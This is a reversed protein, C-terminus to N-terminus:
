AFIVFCMSALVRAYARETNGGTKSPCRLPLFCKDGGMNKNGAKVGMVTFAATMLTPLVGVDEVLGAFGNVIDMLFKLFDSNIANQWITNISNQFQTVKANISDLSSELAAVGAGESNLSTEYVEKLLDPNQLIAAVANARMKGAMTELLAAQKMDGGSMDGLEKWIEAIDLLIQYTSKYAGTDTLISVGEPNMKTKTLDKITAYLKSADEILGKTDEGADELESATTGRLRMSVVKLANSVVDADQLITNGATTLAIIQDLDNGAAVMAASSKTLGTALDEATVAYDNGVKIYKDVIDTAYDSADDYEHSFAQLASTLGETAVQADMFGATSLTASSKALDLSEDMEYGLRRWETASQVIAVNTQALDHALAQADKSFEKMTADNAQTVLKMETLAADFERISNVGKKVQQWVEDIGMRTAAFRM